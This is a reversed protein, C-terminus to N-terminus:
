WNVIFEDRIPSDYINDVRSTKPGSVAHLPGWWFKYFHFKLVFLPEGKKKGSNKKRLGYVEM